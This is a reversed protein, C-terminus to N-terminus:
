ERTRTWAHALAKAREFEGTDLLTAVADVLHELAALRGIALDNAGAAAAPPASRELASAHGTESTSEAGKSGARVESSCRSKVFGRSVSSAEAGGGQEERSGPGERCSVDRSTVLGCVSERAEVGPAEVM